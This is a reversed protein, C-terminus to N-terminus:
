TFKYLLSVSTCFLVAIGVFLLLDKASYHFRLNLKNKFILTFVYFLFILGSVLFYTANIPYYHGIWYFQMYVMSIFTPIAISSFLLIGMKNKKILFYLMIILVIIELIIFCFIRTVRFGGIPWTEMSGKIGYYYDLLDILDVIILKALYAIFLAGFLIFFFRIM